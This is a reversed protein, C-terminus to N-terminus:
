SVKRSLNLVTNSCFYGTLRSQSNINSINNKKKLEELISLTKKDKTYLFTGSEKELSKSYNLSQASHTCVHSPFSGTKSSNNEEGKLM